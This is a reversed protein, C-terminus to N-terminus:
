STSPVSLGQLPIDLHQLLRLYHERYKPDGRLQQQIAVFPLIPHSTAELVSRYAKAAEKAAKIDMWVPLAVLDFQSLTFEVAENIVVGKVPSDYDLRKNFESLKSIDKRLGSLVKRISVRSHGRESTLYEQGLVQDTADALHNAFDGLLYGRLRQSRDDSMARHVATLTQFVNAEGTEVAIQRTHWAYLTTILVLVIVTVTQAAGANEKLSERFEWGLGISVAVMVSILIPAWERRMWDWRRRLWAGIKKKWM